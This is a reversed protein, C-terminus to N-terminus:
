WCTRKMEENMRDWQCIQSNMFNSKEQALEDFQCIRVGERSWMVDPLHSRGKCKKSWHINSCNTRSNPPRWFPHKQSVIQFLYLFQGRRNNSQPCLRWPRGLTRSSNQGEKTQVNKSISMYKINNFKGQLQRKVNQPSQSIKNFNNVM